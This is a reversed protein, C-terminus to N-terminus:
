TTVDGDLKVRVRGTLLDQMLGRKMKQMRKLQVQETELSLNVSNLIEVIKEREEKQPIPVLIRSFDAKTFSAQNVAPKTILDIERQFFPASFIYYAFKSSYQQKLQIRFLNTTYIAPRGIDEYLCLKGIQSLSNIFCLLIDGDQLIYDNVRAGQPDKEYWFKLEKADLKGDQINGSILVPIGIDQPVIRRSLGSKMLAVIDSTKMVEWEEPIEGIETEKYRTHGIGRTLLQQMLGQKVTRTQDIVAQTAQITDDVSSLIASIKKQEPLSPHLFIVDNLKKKNLTAGKVAQDTETKGVAIPLAYYLFDNDIQGNLPVLAAIAENTYLDIGARAVRGITLKFSMITTGANILKVNSKKVGLESISEKTKTIWKSKLDAISVWPYGLSKDRAWYESEKRAPTGGIKIECVDGLLQQHWGDPM